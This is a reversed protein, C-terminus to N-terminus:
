SSTCFLLPSPHLSPLLSSRATCGTSLFFVSLPPVTRTLLFFIIHWLRTLRLPKTKYRSSTPVSPSTGDCSASSLPPPFPTLSLVVPSHFYANYYFYPNETSREGVNRGSGRIMKRALTFSPAFIVSSLAMCRVTFICANESPPTLFPTQGWRGNVEDDGDLLRTVGIGQGLCWGQGWRWSSHIRM